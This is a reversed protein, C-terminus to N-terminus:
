KYSIGTTPIVYNLSNKVLEGNANFIGSQRNVPDIVVAIQWRAAFYSEQTRLDTPSLFIGLGPHTHYWGVIASNDQFQRWVPEWSREHFQFHTSSNITDVPFVSNVDLYLQGSDQYAQGCLIGAQERLIDCHAHEHMAELCCKNIFVLLSYGSESQPSSVPSVLEIGSLFDALPRSLPQYINQSEQWLIGMDEARMEPARM